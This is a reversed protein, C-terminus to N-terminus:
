MEVNEHEYESLFVARVATKKRVLNRIPKSAVPVSILRDGDAFGGKSKTNLPSRM